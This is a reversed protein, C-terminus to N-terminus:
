FNNIEIKLMLSLFILFCNIIIIINYYFFKANRIINLYIAIFVIIKTWFFQYFKNKNFIIKNKFILICRKNFLTFFSTISYKFVNLM